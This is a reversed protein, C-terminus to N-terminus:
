GVDVFEKLKPPARGAAVEAPLEVVGAWVEFRNPPCCDDLPPRNPCFVSEVGAALPPASKPWFGAFSAGPDADPPLRNPAFGLAELGVGALLRKPPKLSFSPPLLPPGESSEWFGDPFLWDDPEVPTENLKLGWFSM